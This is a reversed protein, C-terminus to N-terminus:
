TRVGPPRMHTRTRPVGSHAPSVACSSFPWPHTGAAAMVPQWTLPGRRHFAGKGARRGTHPQQGGPPMGYTGSASPAHTTRAACCKTVSGPVFATAVRQQRGVQDHISSQGDQQGNRAFLLLAAPVQLRAPDPAM